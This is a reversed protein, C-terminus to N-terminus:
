QLRHWYNAAIDSGQHSPIQLPVSVGASIVGLRCLCFSVITTLHMMWTPRWYRLRILIISINNEVLMEFHVKFIFIHSSFDIRLMLITDSNVKGDLFVPIITLPPPDQLGIPNAFIRIQSLLQLIIASWYPITFLYIHIIYVHQIYTERYCWNIYPFTIEYRTFTLFTLIDLSQWL